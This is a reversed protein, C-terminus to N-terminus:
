KAISNITQSNTIREYSAKRKKAMMLVTIPERSVGLVHGKKEIDADSPSGWEKIIELEEKTYKTKKMFEETEDNLYKDAFGSPTNIELM